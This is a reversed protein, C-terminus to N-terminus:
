KGQVIKLDSGAIMQPKVYGPLTAVHALSLLADIMSILPDWLEM